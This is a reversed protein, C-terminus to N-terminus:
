GVRWKHLCFKNQCDLFITPPEDSRRTQVSYHRTNNGKCKPCPFLGEVVEVPLQSKKLEKKIEERYEEYVDSSYNLKNNKVVELIDSLKLKERFKILYDILNRVMEIYKFKNSHNEINNDVLQYIYKEFTEANKQTKLHPLLMNIVNERVLSDNFKYTKYTSPVIYYKLKLTRKKVYKVQEEDQITVSDDEGGEAEIIEGEAEPNCEEECDEQEEVEEDDEANEDELYNDDEESESDEEESESASVEQDSIYIDDESEESESYVVKKKTKSPAMKLYKYM